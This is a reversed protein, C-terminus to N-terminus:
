DALSRPKGDGFKFALAVAAWFLTSLILWLVTLLPESGDMWEGADEPTFHGNMAFCASMGQVWYGWAFQMAFISHWVAIIAAPLLAVLTWRRPANTVLGLLGGFYLFLTLWGGHLSGADGQTCTEISLALVANLAGLTLLAIGIM